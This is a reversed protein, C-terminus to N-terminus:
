FAKISCSPTSVSFVTTNYIWDHFMKVSCNGVDAPDSYEGPMESQHLGGYRVPASAAVDRRLMARGNLADSSARHRALLQARINLPRNQALATASGSHRPQGM